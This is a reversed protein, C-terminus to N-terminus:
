FGLHQSSHFLYARHKGLGVVRVIDMEDMREIHRYTVKAKSVSQNTLKSKLLSILDLKIKIM